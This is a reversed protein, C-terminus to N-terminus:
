RRRVPTSKNPLSETYGLTVPADQHPPTVAIVPAPPPPWWVCVFKPLTRGGVVFTGDRYGRWRIQQGRFSVSLGEVYYEGGVVVGRELQETVIGESSFIYRREFERMKDTLDRVANAAAAGTVVANTQKGLFAAAKVPDYGYKKQMEEPLTALSVTAIGSRHVIEVSSPDNRTVRADKYTVGDSTVIDEGAAIRALVLGVSLYIVRRM